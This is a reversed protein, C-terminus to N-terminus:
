ASPSGAAALRRSEGPAPRRSKVRGQLLLDRLAQRRLIRKGGIFDLGHGKGRHDPPEHVSGQM